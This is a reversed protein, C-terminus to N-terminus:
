RLSEAYAAAEVITPFERGQIVYIWQDVDVRRVDIRLPVGEAEYAHMGGLPIWKIPEPKRHSPKPAAESGDRANPQELDTKGTFLSITRIEAKSKRRM